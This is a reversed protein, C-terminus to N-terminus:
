LIFFISLILLVVCIFFLVKTWLKTQMKGDYTINWWQFFSAAVIILAVFLSILSSIKDKNNIIYLFFEKM